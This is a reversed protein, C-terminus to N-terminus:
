ETIFFGAMQRSKEHYTIRSVIKRQRGRMEGKGNRREGKDNGRLRSCPGYFIKM